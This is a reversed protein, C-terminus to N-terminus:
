LVRDPSPPLIVSYRWIIANTPESTQKREEKKEEAPSWYKWIFSMFVWTSNLDLWHNPAVTREWPLLVRTLVLQSQEALWTFVKKKKGETIIDDHCSLLQEVIQQQGKRVKFLLIIEITTTATRVGHALWFYFKKTNTKTTTMLNTRTFVSFNNPVINKVCFLTQAWNM